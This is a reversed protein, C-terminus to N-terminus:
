NLLIPKRVSSSDSWPRNYDFSVARDQSCVKKLLGRRRDAAEDSEDDSPENGPPSTGFFSAAATLVTVL